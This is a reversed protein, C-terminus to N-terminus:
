EGLFTYIISEFLEEVAVDNYTPKGCGDILEKFGVVHALHGFDVFRDDVFVLVIHYFIGIRSM